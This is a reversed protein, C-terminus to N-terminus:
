KNFYYWIDEHTQKGDAYWIIETYDPCLIIRIGHSFHYSYMKCEYSFLEQPSTFAIIKKEDNANEEDKDNWSTKFEIYAFNYNNCGRKHIIMDPKASHFKCNTATEYRKPNEGNRNYEPDINYGAYIDSYRLKFYHWFHASLCVENVQHKILYYDSSYLVSLTEHLQLKLQEDTVNCETM